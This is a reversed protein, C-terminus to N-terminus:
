YIAYVDKQLVFSVIDTDGNIEDVSLRKKVSRGSSTVGIQEGKASKQMDIIKQPQIAYLEDEVGM